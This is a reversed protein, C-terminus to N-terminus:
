AAPKAEAADLQPIDIPPRDPPTGGLGRIIDELRDVHRMLARGFGELASAFNRVRHGEKRLAMIQGAQKDLEEDQRDIEDRLRSFLHVWEESAKLRVGALVESAQAELIKAEASLVAKPKRNIWAELVKAAGGGGVGAVAVTSVIQWVELNV